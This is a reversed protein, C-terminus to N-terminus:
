ALQYDKFVAGKSADGVKCNKVWVKKGSKCTRWHGRREHARPSSHTGGQPEIKPKPPEIKVTHWDFLIPGKGKAARKSNILSPKAKPLYATNESQLSLVFDEVHQLVAEYESAETPEGGDPLSIELGGASRTILVPEIANKWEDSPGVVFGAVSVSEGTDSAHMRLVLATGNGQSGAIFCVPFPLRFIDDDPVHGPPRHTTDGMDFWHGIEPDPTLKVMRSILPTM